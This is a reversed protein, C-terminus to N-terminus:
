FRFGPDAALWVPAVEGVLPAAPDTARELANAPRAVTRVKNTAREVCADVDIRIAFFIM